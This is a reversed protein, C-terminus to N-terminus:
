IRICEFFRFIINVCVDLKALIAWCSCLMSKYTFQMLSADFVRCADFPTAGPNLERVRIIDSAHCTTKPAEVLATKLGSGRQPHM